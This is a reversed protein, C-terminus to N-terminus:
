QKIMKVSESRDATVLKLYYNGPIYKGGDLTFRNIGRQLSVPKKFLERGLVDMIVLSASENKNSGITIQIANSLPNPAAVMRTSENVAAKQEIASGTKASTSGPSVNVDVFKECISSWSSTNFNVKVHYTGASLSSVTVSNPSNTFAQNYVTAWNSNWIQVTIVPAVLGNLNIV